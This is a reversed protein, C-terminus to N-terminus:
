GALVSGFRRGWDRNTGIAVSLRMKSLNDVWIGSCMWGNMYCEFWM